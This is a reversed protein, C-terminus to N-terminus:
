AIDYQIGINVRQTGTTRNNVISFSLRDGASFSSTNVTDNASTGNAAITAQIGASSDNKLATVVITLGNTDSTYVYLNKLTGAFPLPVGHNNTTDDTEDGPGLYSTAANGPVVATCTFIVKDTDTPTAWSRDGRWFTTSSANTGGAFHKLALNGTGGNSLNVLDWKPNNDTGTNAYYRTSGTDKALRVWTTAGDAYITDGQAQTTAVLASINVKSNSSITALKSDAIAATSSIDANVINGTLNLKSYAIAAASKINANDLNGNVENYLTDFNTNHESAIITAGASFTFTKSIVAM